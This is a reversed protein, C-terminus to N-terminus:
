FLDLVNKEEVLIQLMGSEINIVNRDNNARSLLYGTLNRVLVSTSADNLKIYLM